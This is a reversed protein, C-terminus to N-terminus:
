GDVPSLTTLKPGNKFRLPKEDVVPLALHWLNVRRDRGANVGLEPAGVSGQGKHGCREPTAVPPTEHQNRVRRCIRARRLRRRM